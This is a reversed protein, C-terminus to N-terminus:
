AQSSCIVEAQVFPQSVTLGPMHLENQAHMLGSTCFAASTHCCVGERPTVSCWVSLNAKWGVLEYKVWMKTLVDIQM